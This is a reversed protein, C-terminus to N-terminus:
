VTELTESVLGENPTSAVGTAPQLYQQSLQLFAEINQKM